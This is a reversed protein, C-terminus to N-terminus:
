YDLFPNRVKRVQVHVPALLDVDDGQGRKYKYTRHNGHIVVINGNDVCVEIPGDSRPPKGDDPQTPHLCSVPVRMEGGIKLGQLKDLVKQRMLADASVDLTLLADSRERSVM